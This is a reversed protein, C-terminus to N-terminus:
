AICQDGLLKMGINSVKAIHEESPPTKGKEMGLDALQIHQFDSFGAEKLCKSACSIPCGDIVLVVSAAKTTEIIGSVRGGIGALCYMNGVGERSLKRAAQDSVAGVDAAGSCAFILKPAAACACADNTKGSM